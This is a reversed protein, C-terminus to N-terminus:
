SSVAGFVAVIAQTCFHPLGPLFIEQRVAFHDASGVIPFSKVDLLQSM